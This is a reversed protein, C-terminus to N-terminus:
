LRRLRRTAEQRSTSAKRKNPSNVTPEAIYHPEHEPPASATRELPAPRSQAPAQVAHGPAPTGLRPNLNEKDNKFFSRPRAQQAQLPSANDAAVLPPRRDRTAQLDGSARRTRLQRRRYFSEHNKFDCYRARLSDGAPIHIGYQAGLNDIFPQWLSNDDVTSRLQRNTASLMCMDLPSLKSLIIGWVDAPLMEIPSKSSSSDSPQPLQLAQHVASASTSESRPHLSTASVTRAMLPTVMDSAGSYTQSPQSGGTEPTPLCAASSLAPTYAAITAQQRFQSCLDSTPTEPTPPMLLHQKGGAQGAQKLPMAPTAGAGGPQRLPVRAAQNEMAARELSTHLPPCERQGVTSTAKKKKPRPREEFTQIGARPTQGESQIRANVATEGSRSPRFIPRTM